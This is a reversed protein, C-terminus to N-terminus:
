NILCGGFQPKPTKPDAYPRTGAEAFGCLGGAVRVSVVVLADARQLWEQMELEHEVLTADPWLAHRM